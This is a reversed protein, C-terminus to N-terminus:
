SMRQCNVNNKKIIENMESKLASFLNHLCMSTFQTTRFQFQAWYNTNPHKCHAFKTVMKERTMQKVSNRNHRNHSRTQNATRLGHGSLYDM